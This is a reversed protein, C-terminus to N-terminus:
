NVQLLPHFHSSPHCTTDQNYRKRQHLQLTRLLEHAGCFLALNVLHLGEKVPVLFQVHIAFELVASRGQVSGRQGSLAAASSYTEFAWNGEEPPSFRLLYTGDGNYFGPIRLEADGSGCFTAGFTIAFPDPGPDPVQFVVDIVDWRPCTYAQNPQHTQM